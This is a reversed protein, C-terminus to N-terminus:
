ISNLYKQKNMVHEEFTVAYHMNGDRDTLFYFYPTKIPTITAKISDLGPNSIPTPPLGRNTYSNYPSDLKLDETTLTASTKGNIYKFSSDVQLAMKISLRKWLIGAVIQRTETLRAEEEVISAMKIIDSLPKGFKKIDESVTKIKENFNDNMMKIIQVETMDPLIYYTDPFLYGELKQDKVIKEFVKKDFSPFNNALLDSIEFSNMGEPITVRVPVLQLDGQSVRWAMYIVNEKNHLAYDGEIIKSKGLSFMYVFSKFWFDSKIINKNSFDLALVSLTEGSKLDYISGVPFSKPASWFAIYFTAVFFATVFGIVFPVTQKKDFSFNSINPEIPLQEEPM